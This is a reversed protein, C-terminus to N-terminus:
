LVAVVHPIHPKEKSPTLRLSASGGILRHAIYRSDTLPSLLLCRGLFVLWEAHSMPDFGYYHYSRGSLLIAGRRQNISRLALVLYRIEDLNPLIRFDMLPLHAQTGDDLRCRSNLAIVYDPRLAKVEEDIRGNRLESRDVTFSREEDESLNHRGAEISFREFDKAGWAAALVAEWYPVVGETIARVSEVKRLLDVDAPGNTRLLRDSLSSTPKYTVFTFEAARNVLLPLLQALVLATAGLEPVTSEM